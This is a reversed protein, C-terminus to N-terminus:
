HQVQCKLSRQSPLKNACHQCNQSQHVTDAAMSVTCLHSQQCNWSQHSELKTSLHTHTQTYLCAWQASTDCHVTQLITCLTKCSCHTEHANNLAADREREVDHCPMTASNRTQTNINRAANRNGRHVATQLKDHATNNLKLGYPQTCFPQRSDFLAWQFGSASIWFIHETDFYFWTRHSITTLPRWTKQM